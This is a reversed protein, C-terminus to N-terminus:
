AKTLCFDTQSPLAKFVPFSYTLFWLENYIFHITLILLTGEDEGLDDDLHDEDKEIEVDDDEEDGVEGEVGEAEVKQSCFFCYISWM